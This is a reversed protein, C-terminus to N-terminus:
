QWKIYNRWNCEPLPLPQPIPYDGAIALYFWMYQGYVYTGGECAVHGLGQLDTTQYGVCDGFFMKTYECLEGVHCIGDGYIPEELCPATSVLSRAETIGVTLVMLIGLIAIIKNM